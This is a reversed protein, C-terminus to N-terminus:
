AADSRGGSALRELLGILRRQSHELRVIAKTNERVVALLAEGRDREATIRQHAEDLQRNRNTAFRRELIWLIGILGAAGFQSLTDFMADTMGSLESDPTAPM